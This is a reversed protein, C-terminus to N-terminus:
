LDRGSHKNIKARLGFGSTKDAINTGESKVEFLEVQSFSPSAKIAAEFAVLEGETTIGNINLADDNISINLQSNPSSLLTGLETLLDAYSSSKKWVSSYTTVKQQLTRLRPEAASYTFQFQQDLRTLTEDLQKAQTDVVIKALFVFAVMLEALIMVIRAKDVLWSYVNDWATPPAAQPTLLNFIKRIHQYQQAM